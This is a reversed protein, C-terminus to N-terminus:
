NGLVQGPFSRQVFSRQGISHPHNFSKLHVFPNRILRLHDVRDPLMPDVLKRKRALKICSALGSSSEKQFGRAALSSVFWHEVFSAALVVAAVFNGYIFSDKAETFVYH